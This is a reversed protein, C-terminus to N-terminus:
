YDVACHGLQQRSDLRVFLGLSIRRHERDCCDFPAIATTKRNSTALHDLCNRRWWLHYLQRYHTLLSDVLRMLLLMGDLSWKVSGVAERHWHLRKPRLSEANDTRAEKTKQNGEIAAFSALIDEFLLVVGVEDGVALDLVERQDKASKKGTESVDRQRYYMSCTTVNNTFKLERWVYDFDQVATKSVKLRKGITISNATTILVYKGQLLVQVSLIASTTELVLKHETTSAQSKTRLAHVNVVHSNGPEYCYVLDEDSGPQTVIAMNRITASMDWTSIQKGDVWDWLTIAENSDAVYLHNPKTSSLAYATVVGTAGVPLVNALLSTDVSYIQISKLNALLIYKEDRSFIPDSALFWGGRPPSISWEARSKSKEKKTKTPATVQLSSTASQAEAIDATHLGQDAKKEKKSQGEKKKTPNETDPVQPPPESPTPLAQSQTPQVGEGNVLNKSQLKSARKQKKREEKSIKTSTTAPLDETHSGDANGNQLGNLLKASPPADERVGNTHPVPADELSVQANTASPAESTVAVESDKATDRAAGTDSKRPKKSKKAQAGASERKRKLQLITDAM